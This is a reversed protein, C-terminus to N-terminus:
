FIFKTSVLTQSGIATCGGAGLSKKPNGFGGDQAATKRSHCSACLPQLNDWKNSGGDRLPTRHDVHSAPAGCADCNPHAKLFAARIRRWKADYGRQSPSARKDSTKGFKPASARPPAFRPAKRAM